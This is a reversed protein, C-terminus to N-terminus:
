PEIRIRLARFRTPYPVLTAGPARRTPLFFIGEFQEPNYYTGEFQEDVVLAAHVASSALVSAIAFALPRTFQALRM